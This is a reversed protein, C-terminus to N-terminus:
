AGARRHRRRHNTHRHTLPIQRLSAGFRQLEVLPRPLEVRPEIVASDMTQSWWVSGCNQQFPNVTVTNHQLRIFLTQRM